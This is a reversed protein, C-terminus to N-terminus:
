GGEKKLSMPGLSQHSTVTELREPLIPIQFGKRFAWSMEELNRKETKMYIIDRSTIRKQHGRSLRTLM